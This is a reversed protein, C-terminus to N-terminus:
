LSQSIVYVDRREGTRVKARSGAAARALTRGARPPGPPSPAPFSAAKRPM